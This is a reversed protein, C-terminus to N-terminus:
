RAMRIYRGPKLGALSCPSREPIKYRRQRPETIQKTQPLGIRLLLDQFRPDSRLPDLRPDVGVSPM